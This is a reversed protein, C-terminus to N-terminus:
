LWFVAEIHNIEGPKLKWVLQHGNASSAPVIANEANAATSAGWPTNLSFDLQFLSDADIAVKGEPSIVALSRLDLDYSLKNRVVLLFNGQNLTLHSNIKPLDTYNSNAAEAKKEDIPNFFQNIKEALEEGNNFPITVVLENDSIRQTKGRLRDARSEISNLWQDVTAKSFEALKEKLNIHQVLEGSNTNKFTVGLDYQVCGTLFTLLCFAFSFLFLFHKKRKATEPTMKEKKM